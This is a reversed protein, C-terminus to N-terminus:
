RGRNFWRVVPGQDGVDSRSVGADEVFLRWAIGDPVGLAWALAAKVPSVHTVVVVVASAAVASLEECAATV